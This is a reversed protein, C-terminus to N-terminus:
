EQSSEPSEEVAVSDEAVTELVEEPEPEVKVPPKSPKPPRALAPNLPSRIEDKESSKRGKGKGRGEARGERRDEGRGERRDEGRNETDRPNNQDRDRDKKIPPVFNRKESTSIPTVESTSIPTVEVDPKLQRESKKIPREVM